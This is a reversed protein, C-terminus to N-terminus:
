AAVASAIVERVKLRRAKEAEGRAKFLEHVQPAVRWHPTKSKAPPNVPDLWGFADLAECIKIKEDNDLRQLAKTSRALTRLTIDDIEPRSIIFSALELIDDHRNSMGLTNGYFAIANPILYRQMFRAVRSATSAAILAPFIKQDSNEICHFAVCLRCFIGDYKGFHSGLKPSVMETDLLEHHKISVENFISQAKEDFRLTFEGNFMIQQAVNGGDKLEWLRNILGDYAKAEASLEVDKGPSGKKLVVPILRQILGDDDLGNVIKRLPEPQIGGILNVSLNPILSAGSSVRNVPCEGGNYSQLWFAKDALSGKAGSYKDMGGFWGALEDQFVLVGDPSDKLVRQAAEITTDGIRVRKQKPAECLEREKKEKANYDAMKRMYDNMLQSDIDAIPKVVANLLPSKKTSPSGILAVWLRASEKWDISNKRVQLKIKDTVAACCVALSAMALGGSDVGIVEAQSLAFKEIEIPLLGMPMDVTEYRKWLDVPANDVESQNQAASTEVLTKFEDRSGSWDVIDGKPPLGPLVVRFTSAGADMLTKEARAAEEAGVDDNDPLIAVTRGSFLNGLDKPLNKLSTAPFGWAALKDAKREGEAMFLISEMPAAVLDLWRYLIADGNRGPKWQNNGVPHSVPFDKTGDAHDVRTVRYRLIGDLDYYEFVNSPKFDVCSRIQHLIPHGNSVGCRHADSKWEPLFGDSRLREREAVYDGGNHCHVLVGEPASPTVRISTGRDKKSHGITPINAQDGNATGGYFRAISRADLSRAM